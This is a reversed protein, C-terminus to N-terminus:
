DYPEIWCLQTASLRVSIVDLVIKHFWCLCKNTLTKHYAGAQTYWTVDSLAFTRSTTQSLIIASNRKVSLTNSIEEIDHADMGIAETIDVSM